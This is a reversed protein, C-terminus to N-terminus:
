GLGSELHLERILHGMTTNRKQALALLAEAREVDLMEALEVLSLLDAREFETITEAELKAELSRLRRMQHEPLRRQIANLLAAESRNRKQIVTAEALFRDLDSPALQSVARLLGPVTIQVPLEVSQM